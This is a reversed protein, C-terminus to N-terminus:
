ILVLSPARGDDLHLLSDALRNLALRVDRFGESLAEFIGTLECSRALRHQAVAKFSSRGVGEYFSVDPAGRQSRSEVNEHFIGTIFLSYNGMHARILFSQNASANQLAVMMDGVYQIPTERGDAPSRMRATHSFRELLSAVYDSMGRDNLGTEKLVHRVLIYFYLQPSITLPAGHELVTKFLVPDDLITDRIEADTLLKGLTVSDRDSHALTRVVFEFDEATFRERCNAKIM